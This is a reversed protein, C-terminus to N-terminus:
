NSSCPDFCVFCASVQLVLSLRELCAIYLGEMAVVQMTVLIWFEWGHKYLAVRWACGRHRMWYSKVVEAPMWSHPIKSIWGSNWVKETLANTDSRQIDRIWDTNHLSMAAWTVTVLVHNVPPCEAAADDDVVMVAHHGDRGDAM